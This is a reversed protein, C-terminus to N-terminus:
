LRNFIRGNNSHYAFLFGCGLMRITGTQIVKLSRKGLDRNNLTLYSSFPAINVIASWCYTTYLRDIPVM